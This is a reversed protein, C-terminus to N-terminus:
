YSAKVAMWYSPIEVKKIAKIFSRTLEWLAFSMGITACVVVGTLLLTTAMQHYLLIFTASLAFFKGLSIKSLKFRLGVKLMGVVGRKWKRVMRLVGYIPAFFVFLGAFFPVSPLFFSIVLAVIAITAVYTFLKQM